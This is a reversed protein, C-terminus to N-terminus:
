VRPNNVALQERERRRTRGTSEIFARMNAQKERVKEKAQEIGVDDSMANMMNFERKSKRIERELYRQQQQQKYAHDNEERDVQSERSISVGEVYSYFVHGCNCGKLGDPEGYSTDTLAPYKDSQGSRSLIKNQWPACKPRAGMHESVQILDIGYEDMRAFQMDNAVTNSMSRVITNIRGEVSMEHGARNVFGTLGKNAWQRATDRLAQQPTITGTLVKGVSENIIRVYGEEAKTFLTTNVLNFSSQAQDAYANLINTMVPSRDTPPTTVRGQRVAEALDVDTDAIAQYGVKEFIEVVEDIAMNARKAIAIMNSQNLEGIYQMQLMQWSYIDDKDLRGRNRALLTGLNHFIEDEIAAYVKVVSDALRQQELPTM